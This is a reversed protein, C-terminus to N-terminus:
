ESPFGAFRTTFAGITDRTRSTDYVAFSVHRFRGGFDGDPRLYDAFVLAVTAPDNQFVGCGWAGLVLAECQHRGALALVKGARQM